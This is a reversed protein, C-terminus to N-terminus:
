LSGILGRLINRTSIFCSQYFLLARERMSTKVLSPKVDVKVTRKGGHPIIGPPIAHAEAKIKEKTASM